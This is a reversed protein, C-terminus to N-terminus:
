LLKKLEKAEKNFELKFRTLEEVHNIPVDPSWVHACRYCARIDEGNPFEIARQHLWIEDDLRSLTSCKRAIQHIQMTSRLLSLVRKLSKMAM